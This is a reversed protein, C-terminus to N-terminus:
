PSLDWLHKIIECHRHTGTVWPRMFTHITLWPQLWMQLSVWPLIQKQSEKSPQQCSGNGWLNNSWPDWEGLLQWGSAERLDKGCPGWFLVAWLMAKLFLPHWLHFGCDKQLSGKCIADWCMQWIRNMLLLNSPETWGQFSPCLMPAMKYNDSNNM